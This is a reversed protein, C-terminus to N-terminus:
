THDPSAARAKRTARRSRAPPTPTFVIPRFMSAGNPPKLRDPTPRSTPEYASCAYLSTCDITHAPYPSFQRPFNELRVNRAHSRNGCEPVRHGSGRFRVRPHSDIKCDPTTFQGHISMGLRNMAGVDPSLGGLHPFRM